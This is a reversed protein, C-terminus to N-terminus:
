AAEGHVDGGQPVRGTREEVVAEVLGRRDLVGEIKAAAELTLRQVGGEWDHMQGPSAGVLRAFQSSKLGLEERIATLAEGAHM